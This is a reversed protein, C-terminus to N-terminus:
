NYFPLYSIDIIEAENGEDIIKKSLEAIKRNFSGQRLSGVLLGIKM